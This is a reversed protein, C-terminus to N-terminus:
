SSREITKLGGCTGQGGDGSPAEQNRRAICNVAQQFTFPKGSPHSALRTRLWARSYRVSLHQHNVSIGNWSPEPIV